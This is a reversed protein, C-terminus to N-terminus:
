IRLDHETSNDAQARAEPKSLESSNNNHAFNESLILTAKDCHVSQYNNDSEKENIQECIGARYVTTKETDCSERERSDGVPNIKRVIKDLSINPDVEFMAKGDVMTIWGQVRHRNAVFTERPLGKTLYDANQKSSEVTVVSAQQSNIAHWFHHLKLAFFKSRPTLRQNNALYYAGMNDEYVTAKFTTPLKVHNKLVQLAHLILARLPIVVRMCSSLAIYEAHTTSLAIESQLQSKWLLPCGSLTIVWGTRSRVSDPVHDPERSYLGAFDADVYCELELSKTPRLIMGRESTGKLYRLISKVATAHSKKPSRTFRAVQSVAFAIDPRTNTTLYLLMGVISAYNWTEDMPEGEPDSGLCLQTCPTSNASCDTMGATELIKTTLGKQTLEISGDSRKDFKIGLFEEFTGEKKLKLGQDILAQIVEDVIKETPAM